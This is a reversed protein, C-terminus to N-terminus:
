FEGKSHYSASNTYHSFNRTNQQWSWEEKGKVQLFSASSVKTLQSANERCLVGGQQGM